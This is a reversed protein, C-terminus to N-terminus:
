DFAAFTAPAGLRAAIDAAAAEPSCRTTDIRLDAETWPEYDRDRVEQWDPLSHGDIDPTRTEVRRRHETEDGCVIEVGVHRAGASEAVQRWAIRTLAFPNVSDAIVVHGLALNDAALAQCVEYGSIVLKPTEGARVLAQEASDIRLYVAGTLAALRRAISTKGTGPLGSFVVLTAGPHQTTVSQPRM